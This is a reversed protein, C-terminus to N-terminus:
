WIRGWFELFKRAVEWWIKKWFKECIKEDIKRGLKKWSIEAWNKGPNKKWNQGPIEGLFKRGMKQSSIEGLTKKV